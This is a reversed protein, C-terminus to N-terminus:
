RFHPVPICCCCCKRSRPRPPRQEVPRGPFMAQQQPRASDDDDDDYYDDDSDSDSSRQRPKPRAGFCCNFGGCPRCCDEALSHCHLLIVWGIAFFFVLIPYTFGITMVTSPWGSPDCFLGSTLSRGYWGVILEGILFFFYFCFCVDYCFIKGASDMILEAVNRRKVKSGHVVAEAEEMDVIDQLGEWTQHQIYIASGINILLIAGQLLILFFVTKGEACVETAPLPTASAALFGATATDNTAADWTTLEPNSHRLSLMVGVFQILMLILTGM